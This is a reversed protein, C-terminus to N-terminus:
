NTFERISVWTRYIINHNWFNVHIGGVITLTGAFYGTGTPELKCTGTWGTPGSYLGVIINGNTKLLSDVFVENYLITQTPSLDIMNMANSAQIQISVKKIYLSTGNTTITNTALTISAFGRTTNIDSTNITQATISSLTATTNTYYNAATISGSANICNANFSTTSTITAQKTNAISDVQSKNYINPAALIM